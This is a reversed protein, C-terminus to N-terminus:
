GRRAAGTDISEGFAVFILVSLELRAARNGNGGIPSPM